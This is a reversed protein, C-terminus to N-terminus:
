QKGQRILEPYDYKWYLKAQRVQRAQLAEKSYRYRETVLSISGTPYRLEQAKKPLGVIVVCTYLVLITAYIQKVLVDKREPVFPTRLM